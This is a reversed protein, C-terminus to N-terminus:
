NLDDNLNYKGGFFINMFWHTTYNLLQETFLYFFSFSDFIMLFVAYISLQSTCLFIIFLKDHLFIINGYAIARIAIPLLYSWINNYNLFVSEEDARLNIIDVYVSLSSRSSSIYVDHVSQFYLLTNNYRKTPIM